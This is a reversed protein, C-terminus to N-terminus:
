NNISLEHLSNKGKIIFSNKDIKLLVTDKINERRAFLYDYLPKKFNEFVPDNVNISLLNKDRPLKEIEKFIYNFRPTSNSVGIEKNLKLKLRKLYDDVNLSKLINKIRIKNIEILAIFYPLLSRKEHLVHTELSYSHNCWRVKYELDGNGMDLYDYGNKICWDLQKYIAINGLGFKSYDVDFAPIVAFFIKNFHFNISVQIPSDGDYIVLISAKKLRVLQLISNYYTNWNSLFFNTEKLLEFRKLIMKHSCGMIFDYEEKTMEGFFIKYDINFCSELRKMKKVIPARSSKSFHARLHDDTNTYNKDVIIGFSEQKKQTIKKIRILNQDIFNPHLFQPFAIISAVYGNKIVPSDIESSNYVRDKKNFSYYLSEYYNLILNKEIITLFFNERKLFSM